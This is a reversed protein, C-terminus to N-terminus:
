QVRGPAPYSNQETFFVRNGCFSPVDCQGTRHASGLFQACERSMACGVCRLRAEFWLEPDAKRATLAPIGARECMRHMLQVQRAIGIIDHPGLCFDAM